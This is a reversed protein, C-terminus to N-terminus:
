IGFFYIIIKKKYVHMGGQYPVRPDQRTDYSYVHRLSSKFSDGAEEPPAVLSGKELSVTRWAAEYWLEHSSEGSM